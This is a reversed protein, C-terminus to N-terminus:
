LLVIMLTGAIIIGAAALKQWLHHEHFLRGGITVDLLTSTRKLAVVLAVPAMTLAVSQFWGNLLHIFAIVIIVAVLHRRGFAFATVRRKQILTATVYVVTLILIDYFLYTPISVESLVRRAFLASISYSALAVWIYWGGPRRLADIIPATFHGPGRIVQKWDRPESFLTILYAGLTLLGVGLWKGPSFLEGLTAVGLIAVIGPELAMIPTITSYEFRRLAKITLFFAVAGFGAGGLLLGAQHFNIAWKIQSGFIILVLLLRITSFLTVYELSHEERLIRKQIIGVVAICLAALLAYGYWPM